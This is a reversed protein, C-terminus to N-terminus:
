AITWKRMRELLALDPRDRFIGRQPFASDVGRLFVYFVGGFHREYEYDPLRAALFRDVALVYLYAQLGYRHQRMSRAVGESNYAEPTNGLWNSKWDLVYYRGEHHFLLDIFGRLFGEVPSFRLRGLEDADLGDSACEAFVARLDDPRLSHLRFSFEVESLRDASSIGGLRLGPALEVELIERLKAKLHETWPNRPFGHAALKGPLLTDLQAPNQFDLNELVDHFFDGARAGREFRFIPPMDTPAAEVEFPASEPLAPDSDHEPPTVPEHGAATLGSFSTLFATPAFVGPFRKPALLLPTEAEPALGEAVSADEPESGIASWGAADPQETAFAEIGSQLTAEPAVDLVHALASASAGRIDGFYVICQHKARTVAVYLLRTEEALAEVGHLRVSEADAGAKGRLDLTLRGSADHFQVRERNRTPPDAPQWLFPCFVVGYELGKSKHVTVITVADGDSELRIQAAEASARKTARQEGLWEILAEPTLRLFSEAEHLLEALHLLNTLRREGAPWEMVRRRADREALFRRFMAAFCTNRWLDRWSLFQELWQQHAETTFEAIASANVGLMPTLLASNLRGSDAPSLVAELFRQLEGAEDSQFVSEDTHLVARIGRQRLAAQVATAQRHKRVLVALDSWKWDGGAHLAAIDDAVAETIRRSGEEQNFEGNKGSAEDGVLHRFRLPPWPKSRRFDAGPRALVPRYTIEEVVFPDGQKRRTFFANLGTLLAEDSRWNTELTYRRSASKAAELYTFVDAGRFGYIAQKPDGIFFLWHRSTAFLRSFIEYQIPDTDQFEDILAARYQAGVGAALAAGSEGILARRTLTLLDDFTLINSRLKRLPLETRAFDLFEHTLRRFYRGGVECFEQCLVFFPHEPTTKKKKTFAIMSDTCFAEMAEICGGDCGPEVLREMAAFLRELRDPRFAKENRMLADDQSLIATIEERNEAWEHRIADLSKALSGAIKACAEPDREPLIVVNPHDRTGALLDTWRSASEGRNVALAAIHPPANHFHKRWFDGAVEEMLPASDPTLSVGYRLGSEFTNDQLVRQCFGHITFVRAEDFSQGALELDRIARARLEADTAFPAIIPDALATEGGERLQILATHIRARIRERLESTAAVTYTVALISQVPVHEELVLRLFLAAISWTKGTGASAEILTTGLELPTNSADFPKMRFVASSDRALSALHYLFM